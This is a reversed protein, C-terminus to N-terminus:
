RDVQGEEDEGLTACSAFKATGMSSNPSAQATTFSKSPSAMVIEQRGGGSREPGQSPPNLCVAAATHGPSSVSSGPTSLLSDFLHQTKAKDAKMIVM